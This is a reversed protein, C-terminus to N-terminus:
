HPTSKKLLGQLANNAIFVVDLNDVHVVM